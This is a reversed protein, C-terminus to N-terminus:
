HQAEEATIVEDDDPYLIKPGVALARVIIDREITQEASKGDKGTVTLTYEGPKLAKTFALRWRKAERPRGVKLKARRMEKDDLTLTEVVKGAKTKIVGQLSRFDTPAIGTAVLNKVPGPLARGNRHIPCCIWFDTAMPALRRELTLPR